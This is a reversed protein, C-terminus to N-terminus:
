SQAPHEELSMGCESVLLPNARNKPSEALKLRCMALGSLIGRPSSISSVKLPRKKRTGM